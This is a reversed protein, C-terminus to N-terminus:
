LSTPRKLYTLLPIDFGHALVVTENAHHAPQNTAPNFYKVRASPFIIHLNVNHRILLKMYKQAAIVPLPFLMVFPKGFSLARELVDLKRSWMPTSMLVDYEPPSTNFFNDRTAVVTVGANEMAKVSSLSPSVFPEWITKEHLGLFEVLEEWVWAPSEWNDKLSTM